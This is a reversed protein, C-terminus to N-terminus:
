SSLTEHSENKLKDILTSSEPGIMILYSSTEHDVKILRHKPGLVLSESLSLANKKPMKFAHPSLRRFFYALVFILGIIFFFILLVKFYSIDMM